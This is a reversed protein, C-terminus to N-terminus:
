GFVVKAVKRGNGGSLLAKEGCVPCDLFLGDSFEMDRHWESEHGNLCKLKPKVLEITIKAKGAITGETVIGFAEKLEEATVDAIEGLEIVIEKIKEARNKEAEALADGLLKRAIGFEHM